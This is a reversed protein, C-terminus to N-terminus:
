DWRASRRGPRRAHASDGAGRRCIRNVLDKSALGHGGRDAPPVCLWRAGAAACAAPPLWTGNPRAVLLNTLVRHLPRAARSVTRDADAPPLGRRSACAPHGRRRARRAAAARTSRSRRIPRPLGTVAESACAAATTTRSNLRYLRPPTIGLSACWDLMDPKSLHPPDCMPFPVPWPAWGREIAPIRHTRGTSASTSCRTPQTPTTAYGRDHPDNSSSRRAHRWGNNGLFRQHPLGPVPDTRGRRRDTDGRPTPRQRARVAVSRSRPCKHRRGAPCPQRHRDRPSAAPRHVLKRSRRLVARRPADRAAAAAAAASV